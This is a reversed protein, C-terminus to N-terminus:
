EKNGNFVFLVHGVHKDPHKHQHLFVLFYMVASKLRTYKLM